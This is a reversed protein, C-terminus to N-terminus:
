NVKMGLLVIEDESRLFAPVGEPKLDEKMAWAYDLFTNFAESGASLILVFSTFQLFVRVEFVFVLEEALVSAGAM